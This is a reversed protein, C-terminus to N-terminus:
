KCTGLKPTAYKGKGGDKFFRKGGKRFRGNKMALKLLDKPVEQSSSKFSRVLEAALRDEDVLLTYADGKAKARGTRGVRHIHSNINKAADYNLVVSIHKIDIGRAAVDTSVLITIKKSKYDSFVSERDQQSMDGHLGGCSFGQSHLNQVLNEVDVKKSVFILVTGKLTLCPLNNMLWDWKESHDNLVIIHQKVNSSAQKPDGISIFVPDKLYDKVLKEIKPSFTASFLLLHVDPRINSCISRVQPEFGLDFMKDAEDFVLYSINKLHMAKSKVLDILRGPTAIVAEVNSGRLEKFQLGKSSGGIVLSCKIHHPRCYKKAEAYIQQALERSPALILAVPGSGSKYYQKQNKVHVVMPWIFAGTKGGGTEALAVIDRGSLAEPIAQKQIDTPETYESQVIIDMMSEDFMFHAFSVCPKCINNGTVHISFMNRLDSSMQETMSVTEPHEKYFNKLIKRYEIKSHDLSDLLKMEQKPIERYSFEDDAFGLLRKDGLKKDVLRATAYVEEESDNDSDAKATMQYEYQWNELMKKNVHNIYTEVNDVQEMQEEIMSEDKNPIMDQEEVVKEIGKMYADLPDENGKDEFTPEEKVAEKREFEDKVETFRKGPPPLQGEEGDSLFVSSIARKM